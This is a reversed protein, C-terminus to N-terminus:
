RSLRTLAYLKDFDLQLGFNFKNEKKAGMETASAYTYAIPISFGKAIPFEVRFQASAIDAKKGEVGEFEKMRQYSGSFAYTIKSLDAAEAFPNRAEGELSLAFNYDRLRQQNMMRDPNSYLSLGANATVKLPAVDSSYILKLM